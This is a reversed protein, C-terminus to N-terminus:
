FINKDQVRWNGSLAKPLFFRVLLEILILSFIFTFGLLIFNKIFNM